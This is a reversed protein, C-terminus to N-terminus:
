RLINTVELIDELVLRQDLVTSINNHFTGKGGGGGGGIAAYIGCVLLKFLSM